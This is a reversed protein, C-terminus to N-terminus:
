PYRCRIGVRGKVSPLSMLGEVVILAFSPKVSTDREAALESSLEGVGTFTEEVGVMSIVMDPKSGPTALRGSLVMAEEVGGDTVLASFSPTSVIGTMGLWVFAERGGSTMGPVSGCKGKVGNFRGMLWSPIASGFAAPRGARCVYGGTTGMEKAPPRGADSEATIGANGVLRGSTGGVCSAEDVESGGGGSDVAAGPREEVGGGSDAM